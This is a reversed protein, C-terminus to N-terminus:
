SWLRSRSSALLPGPLREAENYAVASRFIQRENGGSLLRQSGPNCHRSRAVLDAGDTLGNSSDSSASTITEKGIATSM